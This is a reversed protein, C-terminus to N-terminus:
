VIDGCIGVVADDVSGALHDEAGVGICAEIIFEVCAALECRGRRLHGWVVM